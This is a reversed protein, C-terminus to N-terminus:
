RKMSTIKNAAMTRVVINASCPVVLLDNKTPIKHSIKLMIIYTEGRVMM